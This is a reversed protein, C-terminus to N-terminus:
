RVPGGKDGHEQAGEEEEAEEVDMVEAESEEAAESAEGEGVGAFFAKVAADYGAENAGSMGHLWNSAMGGSSFGVLKAISAQTLGTAQMHRTLRQALADHESDVLRMTARRMTWHTANDHEPLEADDADTAPRDLYAEILAHVEAETAASLKCSSRGRWMSLRGSNLIGAAAAVANQSLKHTAM